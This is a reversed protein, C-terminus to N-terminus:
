GTQAALWAALGAVTEHGLPLQAGAAAFLEPLPRTNGLALAEKYARWTGDPDALSNRWVQLAGLHAMGYSFFYFPYSFLQSVRQWGAEQVAEYGQWDVDPAFQVSLERWKADLDGAQLDDPADAYTWHQFADIQAITPLWRVLAEEALAAQHHAAQEPTYFGGAGVAAAVALYMMSMAAFEEYETPAGLNWMLGQHTLSLYDHFAHGMEHSLVTIAEQTSEKDVCVIPLGTVLFMWEEGGGQKGKRWGIDLFGAARMHAFLAGLEPDRRQFVGAMAEEFASQDPFLRETPNAEGPLPVNLDWPRLQDVGLAARHRERYRSVLPVIADAITAGWAQAEEPRYDLRGLERWRHARYDPLGAAIALKRRLTRIRLLLEAIEDHVAEWPANSARWAAERVTRKPDALLLSLEPGTLERGDLTVTMGGVLENYRAVLKDIETQLTIAESPFLGAEARLRRFMEHYRPPPTYGELALLKDTLAQNAAQFPGWIEENFRLWATSAAEDTMDARHDRHLGARVEGVLKQLDSWRELWAPVTAAELPEDQLAAFHPALTQWSRVDNPSPIATAAMESM